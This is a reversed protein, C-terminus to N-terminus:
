GRDDGEQDLQLRLQAFAERADEATPLELDFRLRELAEATTYDLWALLVPDDLILGVALLEGTSWAPLLQGAQRLLRAIRAKALWDARMQDPTM